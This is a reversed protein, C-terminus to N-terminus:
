HELKYSIQELETIKSEIREISESLKEIENKNESVTESVTEYLDNKAPAHGERRGYREDIRNTFIVGCRKCNELDRLAYIKLSEYEYVAIKEGDLTYKEIAKDILTLMIKLKEIREVNHLVHHLDTYALTSKISEPINLQLYSM